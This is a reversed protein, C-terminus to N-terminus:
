DSLRNKLQYYYLSPINLIKNVSSIYANPSYEIDVNHNGFVGIVNAQVGDKMGNLLIPSKKNLGDLFHVDINWFTSYAGHSPKWYGAGGGKFLPYSRDPQVPVHVKINDFLNQHNAGSHQDLIPDIFVECDTYVSKTAFTNFSLPHESKNYVKIGEALVNYTGQMMVTYHAYNDGTTTINKMTVNAIHETIIGSEANNIVVDKVWSDYVRTLYIANYGSEVHHAIRPFKPFRFSLHEIGVEKLHKWEVLQAKYSPKINITLPSNITITNGKIAKIEVQQRVIPLDPFNWHHGGVKVDEKKYLQNIIDGNEGDKNFLQLEVVDGVKLNIVESAQMKFESRKGSEIRALVKHPKDYKKLYSKVREGPYQTWIFGGSWAYQSFALDINNEKERQRKDFELLYERLEKLAPPDEAYMLPRPCYLETGNKGSGAGRLVFNSREIYIIDSIIIQGAPLHLIVNDEIEAIEAIAKKLAKTDDLGDNAIVGYDTAYFIKGELQPIPKIGNRYGAFSYDPLYINQQNIQKIEPQTYANQCILIMLGLSVIKMKIMSETM